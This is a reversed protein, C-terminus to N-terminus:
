KEFLWDFIHKILQRGGPKLSFEDSLLNNQAWVVIRADRKKALVAAAKGNKGVMIPEANSKADLYIIDSFLGEVEKEIGDARFRSHVIKLPPEVTQGTLILDFEKGIKYYPLREIGKRDYAIWVWAPCLLLVRGGNAIFKKIVSFEKKSLEKKGIGYRMLLLGNKFLMEENEVFDGYAVNAKIGYNSFMSLNAPDDSHYSDIYAMRNKIGKRISARLKVDSRLHNSKIVKKQSTRPAEGERRITILLKDGIAEVDLIMGRPLIRRVDVLSYRINYKRFFAVPDQLHFLNDPEEILTLGTAFNLRQVDTFPGLIVETKAINKALLGAILPDERNVQDSTRYSFKFYSRVVPFWYINLIFLILLVLVVYVAVPLRLERLSFSYKKFLLALASAYVFVFLIYISSMYRADLVPVLSYIASYGVFTLAMFYYLFRQKGDKNIKFVVTLAVGFMLIYLWAPGYLARQLASYYNGVGKIFVKDLFDMVTHTKFYNGMTPFLRNEHYTWFDYGRDAWLAFTTHTFFPHKFLILKRLLWPLVLLTSFSWLKILKNHEVKSLFWRGLLLTWFM